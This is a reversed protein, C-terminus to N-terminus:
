NWVQKETWDSGFHPPGVTLVPCTAFSVTEHVISGFRSVTEAFAGVGQAGMVILDPPTACVGVIREAISGTEVTVEVREPPLGSSIPLLERLRSAQRQRAHLPLESGEELVHVLTLRAQYDESLALALNAARLSSSSFDVACVINRFPLAPDTVVHPGITMVPCPAERILAEAISGVMLKGLGTRSSTSLVVLDVSQQQAFASLVEAPNGFEVHADCDCGESELAEIMKHLKYDACDREEKYAREFSEPRSYAYALKPIVHTVTLKGRHREALASAFHLAKMALSEFDTALVIRRLVLRAKRPPANM